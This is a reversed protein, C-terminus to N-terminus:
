KRVESRGEGHMVHKEKLVSDYVKVVNEHDIQSMSSAEREFRTCIEPSAQYERKLVKLAVDRGAETDAAQYVCAM